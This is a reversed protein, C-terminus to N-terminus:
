YTHPYFRGAFSASLAINSNTGSYYNWAFSMSAENGLALNRTARATRGLERTTGTGTFFGAM